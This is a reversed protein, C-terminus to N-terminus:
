QRGSWSYVRCINHVIPTVGQRTRISAFPRGDYPGQRQACGIGFFAQLTPEVFRQPQRDDTAAQGAVAHERAGTCQRLLVIERSTRNRGRVLLQQGLTIQYGARSAACPDARHQRVLPM